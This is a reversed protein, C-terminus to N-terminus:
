TFIVIGLAPKKSLGRKPAMAAIETQPAAPCAAASCVAASEASVLVKVESSSLSDERKSRSACWVVCPDIVTAPRAM